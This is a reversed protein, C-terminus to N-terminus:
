SSGPDARLYRCFLYGDDDALVHALTLGIPPVAVATGAVIRSATGAALVPGITVCLEDVLGAEAIEGLLGPGGEALIARYGLGALARVAAGIDVRQEGAVLVRARAAIAAKRGAAAAQTTVVITAADPGGDLLASAPGLDLSATVVAIAPVPPRGTRLGAWVGAAAVPRYHEARVTGSGVLIVDALSRLVTFLMRDAKGSLGGSRGNLAAAGDASAVMNARLWPVGAPPPVAVNGYLAALQAIAAPLPGASVGRVLPLDPGQVPYIQRM